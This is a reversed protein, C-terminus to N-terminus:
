CQYQKNNFAIPWQNFGQDVGVKAGHHQDGLSMSLPLPTSTGILVACDPCTVPPGFAFCRGGQPSSGFVELRVPAAPRAPTVTVQLSKSTPEGSADTVVARVEYTGPAPYVHVFVAAVTSLDFSQTEEMTGDDEFDIAVTRIQRDSRATVTVTFPDEA